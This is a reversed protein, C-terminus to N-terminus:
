CDTLVGGAAVEDANLGKNIVMDRFLSLGRKYNHRSVYAAIMTSWSTLDGEPMERFVFNAKEVDRLRSYRAIMTNWTVTNREPMEDFLKCADGFSAGVYANLLSTAVYVNSNFGLKIIHAHLHKNLVVNHLKFCSKLTYIISFTDFSDSKKHM